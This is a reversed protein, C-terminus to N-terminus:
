QVMGIFLIQRVAPQVHTLASPTHKPDPDSMRSLEYSQVNEPNGEQNLTVRMSNMNTVWKFPASQSVGVTFNLNIEFVTPDNSFQPGPLPPYIFRNKPDPPRNDQAVVLGALLLFSFIVSSGAM